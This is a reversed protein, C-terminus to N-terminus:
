SCTPIVHQPGHDIRWFPHGEQKGNRTLGVSILKSFAKCSFAICFTYPQNLSLAGQSLLTSELFRQLGNPVLNQLRIFINLDTAAASANQLFPHSFVCSVTLTIRSYRSVLQLSVSLVTPMLVLYFM